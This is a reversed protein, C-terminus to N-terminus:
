SAADKGVAEGSGGGELAGTIASPLLITFCSGKGTFPSLEIRGGHTEVVRQAIPLGLGTGAPKKSWFVEFIQERLASPIGPGDDCIRIRAEGKESAGVVVRVEGGASSVELANQLINFLAQRIQAPDVAIVPAGGEETLELEVMAAQFQPRVFRVADAVLEGPLIEIKRTARPRAFALFDKVLQELRLIEDRSSRLIGLAEEGAGGEVLEEELLQLNINMANLPNRIEHALGSALTGIYALKEAQQTDRELKRTRNLLRLVYLFAVILLLISVLGSLFLILVAERHLRDAERDLAGPTVGLQLMGIRGPLPVEVVHETAPYLARMSAGVGLSPLALPPSDPNRPVAGEFAGPSLELRGGQIGRRDYRLLVTGDMSTVVVSEVIQIRALQESLVRTIESRRRFVRVRDLAGEPGLEEAIRRGMDKAQLNTDIMRQRIVRQDFQHFFLWGIVSVNVGVLFVYLIVARVLLRRLQQDSRSGRKLSM